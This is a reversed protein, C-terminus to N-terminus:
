GLLKVLQLMLALLALAFSLLIAGLVALYPLGLTLWARGAGIHYNDQLSRAKLSLNLLGALSFVASATWGAHPILWQGVLLLPVCLAWSLDALGLMVFLGAANGKIRGMELILHLTATLLFGCAVEWLLALACSGPSFSLFVLRQGLARAMFLSLGGILFCLIGFALPRRENILAAARVHDEFYDYVLSLRDM